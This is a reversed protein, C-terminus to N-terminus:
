SAATRGDTCGEMKGKCDVLQKYGLSINHKSIIKKLAVWKPQKMHNALERQRNLISEMPLQPLIHCCRHRIHQM